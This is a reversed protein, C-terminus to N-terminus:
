ASVETPDNTRVHSILGWPWLNRAIELLSLRVVVCALGYRRANILGIGKILGIGRDLELPGMEDCILLQCTDLQGLLLNGWALVEDNFDWDATFQGNGSKGRRVALRRRSGSEVDVLDIGIKNAGEFVAPSVLGVVHVGRAKAQEVLAQCWRTKGSGSQGTVLILKGTEKTSLLSALLSDPSDIFVQM